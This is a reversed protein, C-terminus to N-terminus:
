QMSTFPYTALFATRAAAEAVELFTADHADFAAVVEARQEPSLREGASTILQRDAPEFNIVLGDFDEFKGERLAQHALRAVEADIPPMSRAIARVLLADREQRQEPSLCRTVVQVRLYELGKPKGEPDALVAAANALDRDASGSIASELRKAALELKANRTKASGVLFGDGALQSLTAGAKDLLLRASGLATTPLTTETNAYHDAIAIATYAANMRVRAQQVPPLAGVVKSIENVDTLINAIASRVRYTFRGQPTSLDNLDAGPAQLGVLKAYDLPAEALRTVMVSWYSAPGTLSDVFAVDAKKAAEAKQQKAVQAKSPESLITQRSVGAEIARQMVPVAAKPLPRVPERATAVRRLDVHTVNNAISGM